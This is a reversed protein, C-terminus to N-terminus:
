LHGHNNSESSPKLSFFAKAIILWTILLIVFGIFFIILVSGILLFLGGTNFTKVGTTSSLANFTKKFFVSELLFLAFMIFLIIILDFFFPSIIEKFVETPSSLFKSVISFLLAPIYTLTMVTFLITALIGFSFGYFTNKLMDADQYYYSLERLGIYLLIVGIIGVAPIVTGIGILIAGAGSYSKNSEFNIPM